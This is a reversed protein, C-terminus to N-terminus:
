RLGLAYLLPPALLAWGLSVWVLRQWRAPQQRYALLLHSMAAGSSLLVCPLTVAVDTNTWSHRDFDAFYLGLAVPMLSGLFVAWRLLHGASYPGPVTAEAFVPSAVWGRRALTARLAWTFPATTDRLVCAWRGGSLRWSVYAGRGYHWAVLLWLASWQAFLAVFVPRLVGYLQPSIVEYM